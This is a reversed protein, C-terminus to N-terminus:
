DSHSETSLLLSLQTSEFLSFMVTTSLIQQSKTTEKRGGQGTLHHPCSTGVWSSYLLSNISHALAWVHSSTCDVPHTKMSFHSPLSQPWSRMPRLPGEKEQRVEDDEADRRVRGYASGGWGEAKRKLASACTVFVASFWQSQPRDNGGSSLESKNKTQPRKKGAPMELVHFSWCIKETTFTVQRTGQTGCCILPASFTCYQLSKIKLWIIKKGNLAAICPTCPSVPFHTWLETDLISNREGDTYINCDIMTTLKSVTCPFAFM